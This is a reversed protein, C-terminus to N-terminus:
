LLSEARAALRGATKLGPIGSLSAVEDVNPLARPVSRLLRLPYRPLGMVGRALMELEGPRVDAAESLPPPRERGERRLDVLAGSLATSPDLVARAGVPGVHRTDELALFQQDLATLQRM